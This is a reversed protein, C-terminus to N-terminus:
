QQGEGDDPTGDVTGAHRQQNDQQLAAWEEHSMRLSAPPPVPQLMGARLGPIWVRFEGGRLAIVGGCPEPRQPVTPGMFGYASEILRVMQLRSAPEMCSIRVGEPQHLEGTPLLRCGSQMLFDGIGPATTANSMGFNQVLIWWPCAAGAAWGRPVFRCLLLGTHLLEKSIPSGGLFLARSEPTAVDDYRAFENLLAM